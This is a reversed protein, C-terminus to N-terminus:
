KQGGVLEPEIRLRMWGKWKHAVRRALRRSPSFAQAILM